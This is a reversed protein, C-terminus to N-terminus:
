RTVNRRNKNIIINTIEDRYAIIGAEGLQPASNVECVIYEDGSSKTSQCRIDVAGIDLGVARVSMVAANELEAWNRPRDFLLHSVGVWNCNTSNFFWRETADTRRLKRWALFAHDSTAHIRYERAYGYFKELYFNNGHTRLFTNLQEANEILQMGHGKFGVVAKGVYPFRTLERPDVEMNSNGNMFLVGPRGFSFWEAQRVDYSEFCRKMRLKDRSNEISQVTNVETIREGPYITNNSTRSGLRVIARYPTRITGRLPAASPNKTRVQAIM